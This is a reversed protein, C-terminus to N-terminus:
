PRGTWHNRARWVPPEDQGSDGAERTVSYVGASSCCGWTMVLPDRLGDLGPLAPWVRVAAAACPRPARGETVQLGGSLAILGAHVKIDSQLTVEIGPYALSGITVSVTFANATELGAPLIVLYERDTSGEHVAEELAMGPVSWSWSFMVDDPDVGEDLEVQLLM